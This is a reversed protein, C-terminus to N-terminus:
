VFSRKRSIEKLSEETNRQASIKLFFVVFEVHRSAHVFSANDKVFDSLQFMFSCM